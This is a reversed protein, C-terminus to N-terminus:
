YAPQCNNGSFHGDVDEAFSRGYREKDRRSLARTRRSLDRYQDRNGAHSAIRSEEINSLTELM